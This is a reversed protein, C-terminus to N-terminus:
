TSTAASSRPVPCGSGTNKDTAQGVLLGGPQPASSREGLTVNDVEWWWTAYGQYRFRMQVSPQGAWPSLDITQLSPGRVSDTQHIWLQTWTTGGDTSLEVTARSNSMGFYDTHFALAPHTLESLDWSPSVLSTDQFLSPNAFDSDVIAFGDSGGTLNGRGGPDDFRWLLSRNTTTTWDAPPTDFSEVSVPTSAYAYGPADCSAFVVPDAVDARVASDGVAVPQTTAAYGSYVPAVDLDYSDHQPLSLSYAGTAPDTFTRTSPQGHVQVSAYMPWGHGSGDRVTGSVTARPRASLTVNLTRDQGDALDFGAANDEYGFKIVTLTYHGPPLTLAYRGRADTSVQQGGAAVTAGAIPTHSRDSVAGTLEGHPGPSFAAVGNPTGLGTPGDWGTGAVCFRFGCNGNSGTTVDHLADAHQYPLANPYSGTLPAGALAYTAAIIPAAVSTGGFVGWGGDYVAVGTAPDAVASVDAMARNTCDTLAQTQFAPAPEWPSCTSGALRWASETWGRATNPDRQLTTGGVATVYRSAAPYGGPFGGDGTSATIVVGPHNFHADDAQLEDPAENGGWSNSVFRAGLAVAEDEAAYLDRAAPTDAEVLLLRCSPCVASVMDLDLSIEAAWGADEAAWQTGGRQDVQTFCGNAATCPSLGYQQRYVALDAEAHPDHYADVVAVTQGPNDSPLNYAARLDAPSYGDPAAGPQVGLPKAQQARVVSMCQMVGDDKPAPCAPYTAAPQSVAPQAAAPQAAPAAVAPTAAALVLAGAILLPRV